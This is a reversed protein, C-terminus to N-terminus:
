SNPRVSRCAHTATPMLGSELSRLGTLKWSSASSQQVWDPNFRFRSLHLIMIMGLWEPRPNTGQSLSWGALPEGVWPHCHGTLIVRTLSLIDLKM